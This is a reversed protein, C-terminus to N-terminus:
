PRGEGYVAPSPSLPQLWGARQAILDLHLTTWEELPFLFPTARERADLQKFYMKCLRCYQVRNQPEEEVYLYGLSEHLRNDCYPCQLRYLDWRSGCWSCHAKREGDGELFLLSPLSGCVPCYGKLWDKPIPFRASLNEATWEVSPRLASRALFLLSSVDVDKMDVWEEWPEMEHHLFSEWLAQRAEGSTKSIAQSLAEWATSLQSNKLPIHNKMGDFVVGASHVDVPFEWRKLLPSREKRAREADEPSIDLPALRLVARAEEQLLFLPELLACMEIYAPKQARAANIAHEIAKKRSDPDTEM